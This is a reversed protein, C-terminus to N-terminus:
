KLYLLKKTKSFSETELSYLYLGSAVEKGANNKGDWIVEHRRKTSGQNNILHRVEKGNIDFITLNIKEQHNVKFTIKTSGNFPNPYNQFLKFDIMKTVDNDSIKTITKPVFWLTAEVPDIKSGYLSIFLDPKQNNYVDYITAAQIASGNLDHNYLYYLDFLGTDNDWTLIVVQYEFAFVLDNVGNTNVDYSYMETTGLVGTGKLFVQRQIEYSNDASAEFWFVMTGGIGDWYSSAGIFFEPKGNHDIDGTACNLYANSTNVTSTFTNSYSDNANNEIVYIDGHISGTVSEKYGDGDFDDISVGTVNWDQPPFRYKQIFNNISQDYEAIYLKHGRPDLTDDGVYFVDLLSDSDFYTFLETSGESSHQWMEHDFKIEKPLSDQSVAEYNRFHQVTKINIEILGDRDVDTISLPSLASDTIATLHQLTFVSDDQLELIGGQALWTEKLTEDYLGAVDLKGNNDLDYFLLPNGHSQGIPLQNKFTYRYEFLSDPTNILDIVQTGATAKEIFTGQDSIDVIKTYGDAPYEIKIINDELETIKVDQRNAFREIEKQKETQAPQSFYVLMFVALILIIFKM